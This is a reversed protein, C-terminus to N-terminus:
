EDSSGTLFVPMRELVLGCSSARPFFFFIIDKYV